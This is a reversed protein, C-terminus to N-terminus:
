DNLSSYRSLIEEKQKLLYKWVFDPITFPYYDQNHTGGPTSLLNKAMLNSNDGDYVYGLFSQQNKELCDVLPRLENRSLYDIRALVSNEFIERETKERSSKQKESFKEWFNKIGTTLLICLALIWILLLVFSSWPNFGDFDIYSYYDLVIVISCFLFIGAIIRTPIELAKLWGSDFM